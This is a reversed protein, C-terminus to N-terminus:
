PQNVMVLRTDGGRHRCITNIFFSKISSNACQESETSSVVVGQLKNNILLKTPVLFNPEAASSRLTRRVWNQPKSLM